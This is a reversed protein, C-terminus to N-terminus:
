KFIRITMSIIKADRTKLNFKFQNNLDKGKNYDVLIKLLFISDYGSFNHMYFTTKSYKSRFLEIILKIVVSYINNKDKAYYTYVEEDLFTKFSEWL